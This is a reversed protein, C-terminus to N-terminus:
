LRARPIHKMIRDLNIEGLGNKVIRDMLWPNGRIAEFAKDSFEERHKEREEEQMNVKETEMEERDWFAKKCTDIQDIYKRIFAKSIEINRMGTLIHKWKTEAPIIPMHEMEIISWEGDEYEIIDLLPYGMEMFWPHYKSCFSSVYTM